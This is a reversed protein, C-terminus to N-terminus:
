AKGRDQSIRNHLGERRRYDRIPAKRSRGILCIADVDDKSFLNAMTVSLWNTNEM